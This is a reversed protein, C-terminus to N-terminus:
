VVTHELAGSGNVTFHVLVCESRIVTFINSRHSISELLTQKFLSDYHSRKIPQCRLRTLIGGVSCLLPINAHTDKNQTHNHLVICTHTHKHSIYTKIHLDTHSHTPPHFQPPMNAHTKTHRYTDSQTLRPTVTHTQTHAHIHLCM